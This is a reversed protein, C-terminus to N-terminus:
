AESPKPEAMRSAASAKRSSKRYGCPCAKVYARNDTKLLFKGMKVRHCQPCHFLRVLKQDTHCVPEFGKARAARVIDSFYAM